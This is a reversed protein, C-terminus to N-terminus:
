ETTQRWVFDHGQPTGIEWLFCVTKRKLKTLYLSPYFAVTQHKYIVSLIYANVLEACTKLSIMREAWIQTSTTIRRTLEEWKKRDPNYLRFCIGLLKVHGRRIPCCSDTEGPSSNVNSMDGCFKRKYYFGDSRYPAYHVHHMLETVWSHYIIVHYM